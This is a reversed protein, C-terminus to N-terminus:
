EEGEFMLADLEEREAAIEEFTSIINNLFELTIIGTSDRMTVMTGIASLEHILARVKKLEDLDLMDVEIVTDFYLDKVEGDRLRYIGAPGIGAKLCLKYVTWNRESLKESIKELLKATEEKDLKIKKSKIGM